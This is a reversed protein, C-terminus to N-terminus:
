CGSKGELLELRSTLQQVRKSLEEVRASHNDSEGQTTCQGQGSGPMVASLVRDIASNLIGSNKVAVVYTTVGLITGASLAAGIFVGCSVATGYASIKDNFYNTIAM